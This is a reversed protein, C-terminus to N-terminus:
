RSRICYQEKRKNHSFNKNNRGFSYREKILIINDDKVCIKMKDKEKINLNKRLELPIVVMGLENISRTYCNHTSNNKLYTIQIDVEIGKDITIHKMKKEINESKKLIINRGSKCIDIKDGTKIELHNRMEIPVVIRGLEDIKRIKQELKEEM